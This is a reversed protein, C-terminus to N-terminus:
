AGVVEPDERKRALWQWVGLGILTGATTLRGLTEPARDVFDIVVHEETPVVIMLSPAARYPGDAGTAKWNPFWSVKVLHPVGVATTTFSIRHDELVMDSVVGSGSVPSRTGLAVDDIRRWQEPGSEVLWRDLGAVDDYWEIAADVFSGDGDWVAPESTAVEVLPAEPIAFITFPGSLTIEDLGYERAATTAGETWSV